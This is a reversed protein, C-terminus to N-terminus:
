LAALAPADDYAREALHCAAFEYAMKLLAQESLSPGDLLPELREIPWKVAALGPALPLLRSEGSVDFFKLIEVVEESTRGERRRDSGPHHTGRDSACAPPPLSHMAGM